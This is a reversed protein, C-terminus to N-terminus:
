AAKHNRQYREMHFEFTNVTKKHNDRSQMTEIWLSLRTCEEPISAGWLEQYCPFREVFSMYQIDVLTIESGLVYSDDKLSVAATISAADLPTPLSDWVPDLRLRDDEIKM